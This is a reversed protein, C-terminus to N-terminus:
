SRLDIDKERKLNKLIKNVFRDVSDAEFAEDKPTFEVTFAMSSMGVTILLVTIVVILASSIIKKSIRM